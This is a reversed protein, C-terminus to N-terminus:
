PTIRSCCRYKRQIQRAVQISIMIILFLLWILYNTLIVPPSAYDIVTSQFTSDRLLSTLTLIALSACSLLNDWPDTYSWAFAQVLTAVLLGLSTAFNLPGPRAFSFAVTLPLYVRELIHLFLWFYLGPRYADFLYALHLLIKLHENQGLIVQQYLKMAYVFIAFLLAVSALILPLSINRFLAFTPTGCHISPAPFWVTPRGEIAVCHAFDGALRMSPIITLVWIALLSRALRASHFFPLRVRQDWESVVRRKKELVKDGEESMDKRSMESLSRGIRVSPRDKLFINEEKGEPEFVIFDSASLDRSYRRKKHFKGLADFEESSSSSWMKGSGPKEEKEAKLLPEEDTNDYETEEDNTPVAEYGESHNIPRRSLSPSSSVAKEREMLGSSPPSTSREFSHSETSNPDSALSHDSRRIFRFLQKFPRSSFVALRQLIFTLILLGAMFLPILHQFIIRQLPSAPALCFFAALPPTWKQVLLTWDVRLLPLVQLFFLLISTKSPYYFWLHHLGLSLAALLVFFVIVAIGNPKQCWKSSCTDFMLSETYGYACAGCLCSNPDRGEVCDGFPCIKATQDRTLILSGRPVDLASQSCNTCYGYPCIYTRFSNDVTSPLVYVGSTPRVNDGSCTVLTYPLEPDDCLWCTGDGDFNYTGESCPECVAWEPDSNLSTLGHGVPCGTLNFPLMTLPLAKFRYPEVNTTASAGATTNELGVVLTASLSFRGRGPIYISDTQDVIDTRIALAISMFTGLASNISGPKALVSVLNDGNEVLAFCTSYSNQDYILQDLADRLIYDISLNGPHLLATDPKETLWPDQPDVLLCNGNTALIRASNEMRDDHDTLNRFNFDLTNLFIETINSPYQPSICVTLNFGSTASPTELSDGWRTGATDNVSACGYSHHCFGSFRELSRLPPGNFFITPAAHIAFNQILNARRMTPITEEAGSHYLVAGWYAENSAITVNQICLQNKTEQTSFWFVGGYAAGNGKFAIEQMHLYPLHPGVVDCNDSSEIDEQSVIEDLTSEARHEWGGNRSKLLIDGETQSEVSFIHALDKQIANSSADSAMSSSRSDSPRSISSNSKAFIVIAGGAYSANNAYFQSELIDLSIRPEPSIFVAGGVRARNGIFQCKYIQLIDMDNLFLAGGRETKDSWFDSPWVGHEYGPLMYKTQPFVSNRGFYCNTLHLRYQQIFQWPPAGNSTTSSSHSFSSSTESSSTAFSSSPAVSPSDTKTFSIAAGNPGKNNKFITSSFSSFGTSLLAIAGGSGEPDNIFNYSFSNNTAFLNAAAVTVAGGTANALNANFDSNEICLINGSSLVAGGSYASNGTFSSGLIILTGKANLAGGTNAHNGTFTSNLIVTTIESSLSTFSLAGGDQTARNSIFLCRVVYVSQSIQELMVASNRSSSSYGIIQSDVLYISSSQRVDIAGAGNEFARRPPAASKSRRGFWDGVEKESGTPSSTFRNALSMRSMEVVGSRTVYIPAMINFASVKDMLVYVSIDTLFIIKSRFIKSGTTVFHVGDVDMQRISVSTVYSVRIIDGYLTSNSFSVNRLRFSAREDNAPARMPSSVSPCTSKPPEELTCQHSVRPVGSSKSTEFHSLNGKFNFDEEWSQHLTADALTRPNMSSLSDLSLQTPPAPFNIPSFQDDYSLCLTAFSNSSLSHLQLRTFNSNTFKVQAMRVTFILCHDLISIDSFSSRDISLQAFSQVSIFSHPHDQYTPPLHPRKSWTRSQPSSSTDRSSAKRNYDDRKMNDDGRSDREAQKLNGQFTCGVVSIFSSAFGNVSYDASISSAKRVPDIFRGMEHSPLAYPTYFTSDHFAIAQAEGGLAWFDAASLEAFNEKFTCGVCAFEDSDVQPNPIVRFSGGAVAGGLPASNSQFTANVLRVICGSGFVLAGGAPLADGSFEPGFSRAWNAYIGNNLFWGGELQFVGGTIIIAGGRLTPNPIIDPVHPAPPESTPGELVENPEIYWFPPNAEPERNTSPQDQSDGTSPAPSGPPSDPQSPFHAISSNVFALQSGFFQGQSNLCPGAMGDTWNPDQNSMTINFFMGNDWNLYIGPVIHLLSSYQAYTSIDFHLFSTNKFNLVSGEQRASIFATQMVISSGLVVVNDMGFTTLQPIFFIPSAPPKRPIFPPEIPTPTNPPVHLTDPPLSAVPTAIESDIGVNRTPNLAPDNLEEQIMFVVNSFSIIYPANALFLLPSYPSVELIVAEEFTMEQLNGLYERYSPTSAPDQMISAIEPISGVLPTSSPFFSSEPAPPLNPCEVCRKLVLNATSPLFPLAYSANPTIHLTLSETCGGRFNIEAIVNYLSSFPDTITGNSGSITKARYDVWMECNPGFSAETCVVLVLVAMLLTFSHIRAM